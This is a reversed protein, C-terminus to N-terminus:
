QRGGKEVEGLTYELIERAYRDQGNLIPELEKPDEIIRVLSTAANKRVYWNRHCLAKRLANKTEEGPYKASVTTAVILLNEDVKEPESLIKNLMSQIPEYYHRQFYRLMAIRIEIDVDTRTLEQYFVEEFGNLTASVFQVIAVCTSTSYSGRKEWLRKALMHKDGKFTMLGDALLKQHHFMGRNEMWDMTTEVAQANGMAYFAKLVNERCYITSDELYSVLIEIIPRYEDGQYPPNAAIFYAFFAKDAKEKKQYLYALEQVQLYLGKSYGSTDVGAGKILELARIYAVMQNTNRLKKLVNEKHLKEIEQNKCLLKIQTRIEEEWYIANRAIRKKVGSSYFIYLINFVMLVLCIFLYGYLVFSIDFKMQM